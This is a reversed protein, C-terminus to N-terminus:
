KADFELDFASLTEFRRASCWELDSLGVVPVWKFQKTGSVACLAMGGMSIVDGTSNAVPIFEPFALVTARDDPM